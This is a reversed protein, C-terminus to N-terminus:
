SYTPFMHATNMQLKIDVSTAILVLFIRSLGTIIASIFKAISLGMHCSFMIIVGREHAWLALLHHGAFISQMLMQEYTPFTIPSFFLKKHWALFHSLFYTKSPPSVACSAVCVADSKSSSSLVVQVELCLFLFFVLSLIIM